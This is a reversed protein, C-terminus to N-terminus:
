TQVPVLEAAKATAAAAAAHALIANVWTSDLGLTGLQQALQQDNILMKERQTVLAAVKARLISAQAPTLQLGFQWRQNGVKQLEAFAVWWGAQTTTLGTAVLSAVLATSTLAGAAFAKMATKREELATARALAAAAKITNRHLTANAKAEAKGAIMHVAWPQLGINQLHSVLDQEDMVGVLYLATYEAELAKTEDVLAAYKATTLVLSKMDTNRQADDVGDTLQEDSLIGARYAARLEAILSTRYPQTALWPAALKM